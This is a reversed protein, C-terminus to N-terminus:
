ADPREWTKGCPAPGGVCLFETGDDEQLDTEVPNLCHPCRDYNLNVLNM